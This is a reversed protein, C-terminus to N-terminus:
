VSHGMIKKVSLFLIATKSEYVTRHGALLQCFEM